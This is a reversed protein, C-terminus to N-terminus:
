EDLCGHLELFELVNSLRFRRHNGVTREQTLLGRNTYRRVTTPCVNLIRATEELTLQPDLIRRILDDRSESFKSKYSNQAIEERVPRVLLQIHRPLLHFMAAAEVVTPPPLAPSPADIEKRIARQKELIAEVSDSPTRAHGSSPKLAPADPDLCEEAQEQVARTREDIYRRWEKLSGRFRAM